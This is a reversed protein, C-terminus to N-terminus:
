SLNKTASEDKKVRFQLESKEVFTALGRAEEDSEKDKLAQRLNECDQTYKWQKKKLILFDGASTPQKDLGRSEMGERILPNLDKLEAAIEKEKIKLESYRGLLGEYTLVM